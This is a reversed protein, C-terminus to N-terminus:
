HTTSFWGAISLRRHDGALPDVRCVRHARPVTFLVLTRPGPAICESVELAARTNEQRTREYLILEGGWNHEWQDHVYTALAIRRAVRQGEGSEAYGETDDHLSLCDGVGYSYYNFGMYRGKVGPFSNVYNLVCSLSIRKLFVSREPEQFEAQLWNGCNRFTKSAGPLESLSKWRAHTTAEQFYAVETDTWFDELILVPDNHFSFTDPVFASLSVRM